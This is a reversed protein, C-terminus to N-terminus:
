ARPHTKDYVEMLRDMSVHTYRQTTSLCSHGLLEQIARLDAGSDLLHTAYSHRLGHPTIKGSMGSKKLYKFLIRSVGRSSLPKGYRNLFLAGAERKNVSLLERRCRIYGQLVRIAERGIPVVREKKGKGQVRILGESLELDVEKLAVLEGIRIGAGYFLELIARDRIGLPDKGDASKLLAIVEDVSLFPTLPRGMKPTAVVKAPNFSLVDQRCLHKFFSRLAALKRAISTRSIGKEHLFALYARITLNDIRALPGGGPPDESAPFIPKKERLFRFFQRLDTEYGRLTHFSADKERKLYEFFGELYEQM